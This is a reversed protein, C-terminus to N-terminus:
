AGFWSQALEGVDFGCLGVMAQVLNPGMDNEAGNTSKRLGGGARIMNEVLTPVCWGLWAAVWVYGLARTWVSYKVGLRKAIRIFVDEFTIAVAQSLFFPMSFFTRSAPSTSSGSLVIDGGTHVLGSLFFAVYLQAFSSGSTGPKFGLVSSTVKGIPSLFWKMTQHWTKGWLRRVTYADLWTGFLNPWMRPEHLGLAVSGAAMAFYAANLSCYTLGIFAASDAYRAVYGRTGITASSFAPNYWIYLRAVDFLVAHYAALVSSRLAFLHRPQRPAAPINTVQYNWGVGRPSHMVYVVDLLRKWWVRHVKENRKEIFKFNKLPRALLLLYFGHMAYTAIASGLGYDVYGVGTDINLNVFVSPSIILFCLLAVALAGFLNWPPSLDLFVLIQLTLFPLQLHPPLRM